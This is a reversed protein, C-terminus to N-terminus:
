SAREFVTSERDGWKSYWFCALLVKSRYREKDGAESIGSPFVTSYISDPAPNKFLVLFLRIVYLQYLTSARKMPLSHM